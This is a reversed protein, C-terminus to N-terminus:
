KRRKKVSSQSSSSSSATTKQQHQLTPQLLEQILSQLLQVETENNPPGSAAFRVRGMGDLLYIYATLLNHARLPDRVTANLEPGAFYIWTSALQAAPTNARMSRTVIGQLLYKSVYGENLLLKVTEVRDASPTHQQIPTLWQDLMKYGYDRFAMGVVTCQAAPDLARNKRLWYDPITIGTQQNNNSSSQNQNQNTQHTVHHPDLCQVARITPFYKADTEAILKPNTQIPKEDTQRLDRLMWFYGHELSVPQWREKGALTKKYVVDGPMIRAGISDPHMQIGLHRKSTDIPPLSTSPPPDTNTTAAFSRRLTTTTVARRRCLSSLLSAVTTTTTM